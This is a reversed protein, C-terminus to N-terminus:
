DGSALSARASDLLAATESTIEEDEVEALALSRSLPQALDPEM